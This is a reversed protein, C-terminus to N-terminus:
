YVTSVAVGVVAAIIIWCLKIINATTRTNSSVELELTDVKAGHRNMRTTLTNIHSELNALKEENRALSIMADSLKDIKSEMKDFRRTIEEAPIVNLNTQDNSM